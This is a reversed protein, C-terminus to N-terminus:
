KPPRMSLERLREQGIKLMEKEVTNWEGFLLDYFFSQQQLQIKEQIIYVVEILLYNQWQYKVM